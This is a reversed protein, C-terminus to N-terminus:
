NNFSQLNWAIFGALANILRLQVPLYRRVKRTVEVEYRSITFTSVSRIIFLVHIRVSAGILLLLFSVLVLVGRGHSM